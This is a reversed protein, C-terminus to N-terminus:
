LPAPCQHPTFSAHPCPPPPPPLLPPSPLARPPPPPLGKALQPLTEEAVLVPVPVSQKDQRTSQRDTSSQSSFVHQLRREDMNITTATTPLPGRVWGGGEAVNRTGSMVKQGCCICM